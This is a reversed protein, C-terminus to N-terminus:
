IDQCRCLRARSSDGGKRTAIAEQFHISCVKRRAKGEYVGLHMIYKDGSLLQLRRM